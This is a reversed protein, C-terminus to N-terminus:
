PCPADMEREALVEPNRISIAFPMKMTAWSRALEPAAPLNAIKRLSEPTGACVEDPVLRAPFTWSGALGPVMVAQLGEATEAQPTFSVEVMPEDAAWSSPAWELAQDENWYTLSSVIDGVVVNRNLIGFGAPIRDNVALATLAYSKRRAREAGDLGSMAQVLEGEDVIASMVVRTRDEELSLTVDLERGSPGASVWVDETKYGISRIVQHSSARPFSDPIVVIIRDLNEYPEASTGAEAFAARIEELQEEIRDEDLDPENLVYYRSKSAM